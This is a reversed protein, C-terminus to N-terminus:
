IRCRVTIVDEGAEDQVTRCSLAYVTSIGESRATAEMIQALKRPHTGPIACVGREPRDAPALISVTLGLSRLENTLARQYRDM